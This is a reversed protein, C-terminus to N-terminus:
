AKVATRDADIRICGSRFTQGAEFRGPIARDYRSDGPPEGGEGSGDGCKLGAAGDAKRLSKDFAAEPAFRRLFSSKARRRERRM